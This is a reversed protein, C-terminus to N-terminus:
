VTKYLQDIITGDRYVVLGVVHDSIPPQAPVGCIKHATALLTQIPVINLRSRKMKEILDIRRPNIAIGRETVLVDVDEGPTTVTTVSKKVIPLRAKSLATTIMTIKAGHATDSHGGSGGIIRGFSDTTVNVNFDLDVETAGLIVFDLSDVISDTEFPNGYKSGSIGVHLPNDRYSRVAELDFCQVDYLHKFLGDTLMEVYYGTIGGSAFDGKIGTAKMMKKIVSAVALSTGGAGTQMSFGDKVVGAEMLFAAADRAIKLGVPDQTIKTTGSVIGEHDGISDVQVVYDVYRSPMDAKQVKKVLHDTVLVVTHAYLLDSQAYGLVGCAEEGEAGTGNGAEDVTPCALIAVDIKLDGSEIARARGGHTDMLLLGKLKGEEIPKSVPGNLYSTRINTINGNEILKALIANNPFISSPAFTLNKIGRKSIEQCVANMVQDGNRLHHHFALTMGDLIPVTDFMEVISHLFTVNESLSKQPIMKRKELCYNSSSIFARVTDPVERDCGNKM